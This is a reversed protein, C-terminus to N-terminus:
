STVRLISRKELQVRERECCHEVYALARLFRRPLQFRFLKNTCQSNASYSPFPSSPEPSSLAQLPSPLYTVIPRFISTTSLHRHTDKM